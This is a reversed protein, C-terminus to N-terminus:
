LNHIMSLIWYFIVERPKFLIWSVYIFVLYRIEKNLIICRNRHRLYDPVASLTKETVHKSKQSWKKESIKVKFHGWKTCM